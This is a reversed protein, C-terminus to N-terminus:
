HLVTIRVRPDAAIERETFRDTVWQKAGFLVTQDNHHPSVPNASESYTLITRAVPGRPSLEVAMVFSSGQVVPSFRGDAGLLSSGTGTVINYCGEGNTCGPVSMDKGGVKTYQTSSLQADLPVHLAMMQEVADALAHRVTPSVTNLTNPTTAPHAPDFPVAWVDPTSSAQYWYQRWLVAGRSDPDDRLNWAALVACAARVDVVKGDTATPTPDARCLAVTADRTLEASLNRGSLLAAQTTPVTFGPAGLGDTGHLREDIVSLGMRTRPSRETGTPGYIAPLGTIPAAPNTLWSSNNSNTVFDTRTLTPDAHPGFIGPTIADPDSGWGCTSLSGDLVFLEPELSKGFPSDVCRDALADTVHPVVSADAFYATGHSDAAITNTFPIGQFRNQASRLAAVSNAQGMALWENLSRGNDMNVGKIALATTTTWNDSMVPGYRSDYVTRSVTEGGTVPVSVTRATMREAHGDVLYSTPDGPVLHLEYFTFRQATSVTHTWALSENHGIEVLPTGYLSAGTVDLVGPITMQVQYFRGSGVWPFHPNALLLGDGHATGNKGVGIGNSGLDSTDARSVAASISRSAPQGAAPSAEAIDTQFDADGGFQNIYYFIRELETATVTHV